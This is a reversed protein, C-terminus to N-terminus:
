CSRQYLRILGNEADRNQVDDAAEDDTAPAKHGPLLALVRDKFAM